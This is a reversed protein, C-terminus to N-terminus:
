TPWSEPKQGWAAGAHGTPCLCGQPFLCSELVVQRLM